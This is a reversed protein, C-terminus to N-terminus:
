LVDFVVEGEFGAHPGDAAYAVCLDCYFDAAADYSNRELISRFLDRAREFEGLSYAALAQAFADAMQVKAYRHALEDADLVEHFITAEPRVKTQVRGIKRLALDHTEPLAVLVEDSLLVNAGFVRTLGLLRSAIRETEGFISTEIQGDNGVAAVIAEGHHIGAYIHNAAGYERVIRVTARVAALPDAPFLVTM